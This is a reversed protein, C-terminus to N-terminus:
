TGGLRRPGPLAVPAVPAVPAVGAGDEEEVSWIRVKRGGGELLHDDAAPGCSAGQELEEKTLDELFDLIQYLHVGIPSKYGSRCSEAWGNLKQVYYSLWDVDGAWRAQQDSSLRDTAKLYSFALANALGKKLLTGKDASFLPALVKVVSQFEKEEPRVSDVRFESGKSIPKFLLAAFSSLRFSEVSFQGGELGYVAEINSSTFKVHSMRGSPDEEGLLFGQYEHLLAPLRPSWDRNAFLELRMARLAPLAADRERASAYPPSMFQIPKVEEGRMKRMIPTPKREKAPSTPMAAKGKSDNIVSRSGKSFLATDNKVASRLSSKM